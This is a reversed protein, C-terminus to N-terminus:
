ATSFFAMSARAWTRAMVRRRSSSCAEAVVRSTLVTTGIRYSASVVTEELVGGGGDELPSAATTAM